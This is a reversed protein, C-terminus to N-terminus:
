VNEAIMSFPVMEHIIKVFPKNIAETSTLVSDAESVQVLLDMAQAFFSEFALRDALIGEAISYVAHTLREWQQPFPLIACRVIHAADNMDSSTINGDRVHSLLRQLNTDPYDIYSTHILRDMCALAVAKQTEIPVFNKMAHMLWSARPADRWATGFNKESAYSICDTSYNWTRNVLDSHRGADIWGRETYIGRYRLVKLKQVVRVLLGRSCEFSPSALHGALDEIDNFQDVIRWKNENPHCVEIIIM